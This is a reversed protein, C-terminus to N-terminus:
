IPVDELLLYNKVQERCWIVYPNEMDIKGGCTVWEPHGQLALGQIKSFWVAEPEKPLVKIPIECNVGDLYKHSRRPLSWALMRYEPDSLGFPCMMQHHESEDHLIYNDITKIKHGRSHGDVHQIITGGAFACLFQAGRCIGLVRARGTQAQMLMDYENADRKIDPQNTYKGIDEGYLSPNVDTGGEFLLVTDKDPPSLEYPYWEIRDFLDEIFSETKHYSMVLLRRKV